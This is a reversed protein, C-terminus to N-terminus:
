CSKEFNKSCCLLWCGFWFGFLLGKWECLASCLLHCFLCLGFWCRHFVDKLALDRVELRRFGNNDRIDSFREPNVFSVKVDAQATATLALLGLAICRYKMAFRWLCRSRIGFDLDSSLFLAGRLAGKVRM